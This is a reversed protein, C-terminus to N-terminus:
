RLILIKEKGKETIKFYVGKKLKKEKILKGTIDYFNENKYVQKLLINEIKEEKISIVLGEKNTKILYIDKSRESKVGTIFYGSDNSVIIDQGCDAASSDEGFIRSFQFNGLSDTKILILEGGSRSVWTWGTLVFGKDFTEKVVAGACPRSSVRYRREWEFNGLSDIKALYVEPIVFIKSGILIFKGDSIGECYTVYRESMSKSIEKKWLPNGLSDTRIILLYNYRDEYGILLFGKDAMEKAFLLWSHTPYSYEKEWILNGLSDTKILYPQLYSSSAKVGAIVFGKDSCEKVYNPLSSYGYTKLWLSDFLSDLRLLYINGLFSMHTIVWGKDSTKHVYSGIYPAAPNWEFYCSPFKKDWEFNGLSDFKSIYLIPYDSEDIKSGFIIYSKNEIQACKIGYETSLNSAGPFTKIFTIQSYGILFFLLFLFFIKKMRVEKNIEM